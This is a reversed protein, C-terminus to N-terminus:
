QQDGLLADNIQATLEAVQVSLADYRECDAICEASAAQGDDCAANIRTNLTKQESLAAGRQALLTDLLNTM